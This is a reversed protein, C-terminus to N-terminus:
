RRERMMAEVEEPEIGTDEYRSLKEYCLMDMDTCGDRHIRARVADAVRRSTLRRLAGGEQKKPASAAVPCEGCRSRRYKCMVNRDYTCLKFDYDSM